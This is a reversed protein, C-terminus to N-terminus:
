KDVKGVRKTECHYPGRAGGAERAKSCVSTISEEGDGRQQIHSCSHNKHKQTKAGRGNSLICHLPTEQGNELGACQKSHCLPKRGVVRGKMAQFAIHLPKKGM